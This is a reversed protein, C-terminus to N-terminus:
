AQFSRSSHFPLLWQKTSKPRGPSSGRLSASRPLEQEVRQTLDPISDARSLGSDTAVERLPADTWRRALNAAVARSWDRDGRRALTEVPLGYHRTVANSRGTIGHRRTRM